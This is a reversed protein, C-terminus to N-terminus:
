LFQGSFHTILIVRLFLWWFLDYFSEDFHTMLIPRSFPYGFSEDFIVM